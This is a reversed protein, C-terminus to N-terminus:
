LEGTILWDAEKRHVEFTLLGSRDLPTSETWVAGAEM